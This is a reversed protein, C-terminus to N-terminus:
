ATATSRAKTNVIDSIGSVLKGACHLIDTDGDRDVTISRAPMATNPLM